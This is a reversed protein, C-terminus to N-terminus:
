GREIRKVWGGGMLEGVSEMSVGDEKGMEKYNEM